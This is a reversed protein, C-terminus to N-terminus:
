ASLVGIVLACILSLVEWRAAASSTGASSKSTSEAIDTSSFIAALGKTRIPTAIGFRLGGYDWVSYVSRLLSNGIIGKIGVNTGGTLDGGAISSVCIVGQNTSMSFQMDNGNIVWEAGAFNLRVTPIKSISSCSITYLNLSDSFSGAQSASMKTFGLSNHLSDTFEVPLITLSSGTDFVVSYGPNGLNITGIGDMSVSKMNASWYISPASRGDYNTLSIWSVNGSFRAKDVGGFAFGGSNLSEDIYYGFVSSNVLKQSVLQDFFMSFGSTPLLSLGLIADVDSIGATSNAQVFLLNPITFTNVSVTEYSYIGAVSSGDVYAIRPAAQGRTTFSSSATANFSPLGRCSSSTCLTSRVWLQFSGTDFIAAFTQKPTGFSISAQYSFLSQIASITSIQRRFLHSELKNPDALQETSYDYTQHVWSNKLEVGFIEANSVSVLAAVAATFILPSRM